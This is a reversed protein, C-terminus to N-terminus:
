DVPPWVFGDTVSRVIRFGVDSIPAQPSLGGRKASRCYVAASQWGGGRVVRMDGEIPGLPDRPSYLTGTTNNPALYDQNYWDWCWERVNGHMDQLGWANGDLSGTPIIDARYVGAACTTYPAIGAYNAQLDSDLCDGFGFPTESDARCLKEWEAETPLRWGTSYINCNWRNASYSYASPLQSLESMANCFLIAEEWTVSEVPCDDCGARASPNVGTVLEYEHQTIETKHVLLDRTLYVGHRFEDASRNAEGIPSGIFVSDALAPVLVYRDGPVALVYPSSFTLNVSAALTLTQPEPTDWDPLDGWTLTYDGPLLDGTLTTPGTGSDFYGGPGSIEWSIELHAPQPIVLITGPWQAYTAKFTIIGQDDLVKSEPLPTVWGDVDGWRITYNGTGVVLTDVDSGIYVDDPGLLEWPKIISEPNPQLAVRGMHRVFVGNVSAPLDSEITLRVDAPSDYGSAQEWAVIYEGPVLDRLTDRGAGNIVAENEDTVSWHTILSAPEHGIILEALRQEYNGTITAGNLETLTASVPQPTNYGEIEDWVVTYVGVDLQKFTMDGRGNFSFGNPGTLLWTIRSEVPNADVKLTGTLLQYTYDFELTQGGALVLTQLEPTRYGAIKEWYVRYRGVKRNELRVDGQGNSVYDDPGRITWSADLTDPEPNILITGRSNPAVGGDDDCGMFFLTAALLFVMFVMLPRFM